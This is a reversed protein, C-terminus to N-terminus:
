SDHQTTIEDVQFIYIDDKAHHFATPNLGVIGGTLWDARLSTLTSRATDLDDTTLDYCSLGRHHRVAYLHTSPCRQVDIDLVDRCFDAATEPDDLDCDNNHEYTEATDDPLATLANDIIPLSFPHAEYQGNWASWGRALDAAPNRTRRAVYHM